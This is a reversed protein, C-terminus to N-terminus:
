GEYSDIVGEATMLLDGDSDAGIWEIELDGFSIGQGLLVRGLKCLELVALFHVIIELRTTLGEV